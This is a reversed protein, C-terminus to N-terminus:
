KEKKGTKDIGLLEDTSLNLVEAIRVLTGIDPSRKGIEYGAYTSRAVGLNDAMFGQTYGRVRRAFRLNKSFREVTMAM